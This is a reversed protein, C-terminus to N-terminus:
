VRQTPFGIGKTNSFRFRNAFIPLRFGMQLENDDRFRAGHLHSTLDPFLCYDSPALDPSYPPHNFQEFKCERIASQAVRSQHGTLEINQSKM